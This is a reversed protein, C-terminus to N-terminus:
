LAKSDLIQWIFIMLYCFLFFIGFNNFMALGIGFFLLSIVLILIGKGRKGIYMHGIGLFGFLGFILSLVLTTGESKVFSKRYNQQELDGIKEELDKIKDDGAMKNRSQVIINYIRLNIDYLPIILFMFSNSLM